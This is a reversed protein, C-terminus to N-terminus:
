RQAWFRVHPGLLPLRIAVRVAEALRPVDQVALETCRRASFLRFAYFYCVIFAFNFDDRGTDRFLGLKVRPDRPVERSLVVSVLTSLKPCELVYHSISDSTSGCGFMCGSHARRMRHSTTWAGLWSKLTASRWAFPLQRVATRMEGLGGAGSRGEPSVM